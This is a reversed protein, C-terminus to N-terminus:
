TPQGGLPSNPMLSSCTTQSGPLALEQPIVACDQKKGKDRLSSSLVRDKIEVSDISHTGKFDGDSAGSERLRNDVSTHLQRGPAATREPRDIVEAILRM